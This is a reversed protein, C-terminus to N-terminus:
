IEYVVVHPKQIWFYYALYVLAGVFYLGLGMALLSAYFIRKEGQIRTRTSSTINYGNHRLMEEYQQMKQENNLAINDKIKIQFDDFVKQYKFKEKREVFFYFYLGIPFLFLMILQSM